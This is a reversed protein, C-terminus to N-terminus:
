GGVYGGAFEPGQVIDPQEVSVISEVKEKSGKWEYPCAHSLIQLKWEIQDALEELHRKFTSFPTTEEGYVASLDDTMTLIKLRMGALETYVEDCYSQVMVEQTNGKSGM